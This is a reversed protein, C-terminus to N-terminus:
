YIVNRNISSRYRVSESSAAVCDSFPKSAGAVVRDCFWKRGKAAVAPQFSPRCLWPGTSPLPRAIAPQPRADFGHIGIQGAFNNEDSSRRASQSGGRGPGERAPDGDQPDAQPM